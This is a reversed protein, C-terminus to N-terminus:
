SGRKNLCLLRILKSDLSERRFSYAEDEEVFQLAGSTCFKVCNPDGECLDCKKSVLRVKDFHISGSPCALLCMKCGACRNADIEVAGTEPNRLIAGAPCVEMCWADSCHFCTLPLCARNEPYFNVRIQSDQRDFDNNQKLSCAYECNYCAVCKNPDMTVVRM